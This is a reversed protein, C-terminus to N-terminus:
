VTLKRGSTPRCINDQMQMPLYQTPSPPPPPTLVVNIVHLPRRAPRSLGRCAGGPRRSRPWRSRSWSRGSRAEGARVSPSPFLCQVRGPRRVPRTHGAPHPPSRCSSSAAPHPCAHPLLLAGACITISAISDSATQKTNDLAPSRSPRGGRLTRSWSRVDAGCVCGVRALARAQM